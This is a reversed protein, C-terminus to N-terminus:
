IEYYGAAGYGIGIDKGKQYYEKAKKQLGTDEPYTNKDESVFGFIREEAQPHGYYVAYIQFRKQFKIINSSDGLIDKLGPSLLWSYCDFYLYDPGFFERAKEFSRSCEEALLPGGEPIHVHIIKGDPEFQLRGLRLIKQKLVQLLWREEILGCKNKRKICQHYWITLDYCTDIYIKDWEKDGATKVYGEAAMRMYLYLYLREKDESQVALSFFAEEDESALLKYNRYEKETMCYESVAKKGEEPLFIRDMLQEITM